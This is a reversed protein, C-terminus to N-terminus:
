PGFSHIEMMKQRDFDRGKFQKKNLKRWLLVESLSSTKRLGKAREYLEPNFPFGHYRKLDRM